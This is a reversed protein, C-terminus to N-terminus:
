QGSLLYVILLYPTDLTCLPAKKKPLLTIKFEGLYIDYYLLLDYIM